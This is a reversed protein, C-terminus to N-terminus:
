NSRHFLEFIIKAENVRTKTSWRGYQRTIISSSFLLRSVRRDREFVGSVSRDLTSRSMSISPSFFFTFFFGVTSYTDPKLYRKRRMSKPCNYITKKKVKKTAGESCYGFHTLWWCRRGCCLAWRATRFAIYGFWCVICWRFRIRDILIRGRQNDIRNSNHWLRRKGCRLLNHRFGRGCRDCCLFRQFVTAAFQHGVLFVMLRHGFWCRWRCAFSACALGILILRVQQEFLIGFQLGARRTDAFLLLLLLQICIVTEVVDDCIAFIEFVMGCEFFVFLGAFIPVFERFGIVCIWLQWLLSAFDLGADNGHRIHWPATELVMRLAHVLHDATIWRLLWKEATAVFCQGCWSFPVRGVVVIRLIFGIKHATKVLAARKRDTRPWKEPTDDRYDGCKERRDVIRGGANESTASAWWGYWRRNRIHAESFRLFTITTRKISGLQPASSHNFCKNERYKLCEEATARFRQWHMKSLTGSCRNPFILLGTGRNTPMVIMM